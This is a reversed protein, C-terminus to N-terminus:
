ITRGRSSRRAFPVRSAGPHQRCPPLRLSAGDLLKMPAADEFEGAATQRPSIPVCFISISIFSMWEMTRGGGWRLHGMFGRSAGKRMRPPRISVCGQCMTSSRKGVIYLVFAMALLQDNMGLNHERRAEPGDSPLGQISHGPRKWRASSASERRSIYLADDTSNYKTYHIFM